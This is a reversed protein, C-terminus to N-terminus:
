KRTEGIMYKKIEENREQGELDSDVITVDQWSYRESHKEGSPCPGPCSVVKEETPCWWEKILQREVKITITM